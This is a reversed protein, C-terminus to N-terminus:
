QVLLLDYGREDIPTQTYNNLAADAGDLAYGTNTRNGAADYTYSVPLTGDDVGTM